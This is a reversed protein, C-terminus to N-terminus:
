KKLENARNIASLVSKKLMSKMGKKKDMLIKLAAETTGGPSTVDQRLLTVNTNKEFYNVFLYGTISIIITIFVLIFYYRYQKWIKSLKEKRLDEDVQRLIDSM